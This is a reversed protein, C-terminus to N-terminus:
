DNRLGVNTGDLTRHGALHDLRRCSPMMKAVFNIARRLRRRKHLVVAAFVSHSSVHTFLFAGLM